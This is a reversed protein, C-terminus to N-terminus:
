KWIVVDSVLTPSLHIGEILRSGDENFLARVLDLDWYHSNGDILVSILLPPANFDSPSVM